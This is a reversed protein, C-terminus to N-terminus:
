GDVGRDRRQNTKVALRRRTRNSSPSGTCTSAISMRSPSMTDFTSPKLPQKSQPLEEDRATIRELTPILSYRCLGELYDKCWLEWDINEVDLPFDPEDDERALQSIKDTKFTWQNCIFPHLLKLVNQRRGLFKFLKSLQRGQSPLVGSLRAAVSHGVVVAADNMAHLVAYRKSSACWKVVLRPGIMYKKPIRNQSNQQTIAKVAHRALENWTIPNTHSSAVHMVELHGVRGAMAVAGKIIASAVYDSPIV